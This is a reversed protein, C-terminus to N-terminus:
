RVNDYGENQVLGDTLIVDAIPLPFTYMFRYTTYKRGQRHTWMEPRGNRKLEFWRDGELFLEKRRECLIAYILPTLARGRADVKINDEENVPPLTEMTYDTVGTIRNRRLENLAALADEERGQHYYSEMLICQMEASRLCALPQKAFSRRSGLSIGYRIDSDGEAFLDIFQRSVPKCQLYSVTESDGSGVTRTAGKVLMNGAKGGSTQIMSRYAEGSLLPYKELVASAYSAAQGYEGAWFYLRALYGQMVDSDFMYDENSINCSIAALIDDAAQDVTEYFSSRIVRAEMDFVTVLPVGLKGSADGEYPECFNRLLNYYCIGRLAYALGKVDSADQSNDEALGDLVINCDRIVEYLDAYLVQKDSLDDGVYLPVYNGSPYQTLRSELDDAYCELDAIYGVDGIITEEGEEIQYLRTQLLASFEEPTQPITQGYPKIDLYETCSVLFIMSVAALAITLKKM